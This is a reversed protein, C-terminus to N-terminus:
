GMGADDTPTGAFVGGPEEEYKFVLMNGFAQHDDVEIGHDRERIIYYFHEGSDDSYRTWDGDLLALVIEKAVAPLDSPTNDQRM